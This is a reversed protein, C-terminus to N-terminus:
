ADLAEPSATSAGPQDRYYLLRAARAGRVNGCQLDLAAQIAASRDEDWVYFGDGAVEYGLGQRRVRFRDRTTESM